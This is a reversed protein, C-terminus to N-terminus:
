VQLPVFATAQTFSGPLFAQPPHPGILPPAGPLAQPLALQPVSLQSLPLEVEHVPPHGCAVSTQQSLSV